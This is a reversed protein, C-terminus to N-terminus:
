MRVRSWCHSGMRDPSEVLKIVKIGLKVKVSNHATEMSCKCRTHCALMPRKGKRVGPETGKEPVQNHKFQLSCSLDDSISCGGGKPSRLFFCYM